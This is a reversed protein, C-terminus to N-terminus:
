QINAFLGLFERVLVKLLMNASPWGSMFMMVYVWKREVSVGYLNIKGESM